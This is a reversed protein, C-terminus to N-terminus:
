EMTFCFFTGTFISDKYSSLNNIAIFTEEELMQQSYERKNHENLEDLKLLGELIQTDNWEFRRNFEIKIENLISEALSKITPKRHNNKTSGILKDLNFLHPIKKLSISYGLKIYYKNLSQNAPREFIFDYGETALERSAHEILSAALHNGTAKELTAVGFLYYGKLHDKETATGSIEPSFFRMPMLTIVSLIEDNEGSLVYSRCLPFVKEFITDLYIQDTTFREEWIKRIGLFDKEASATRITM